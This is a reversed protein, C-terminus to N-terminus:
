APVVWLRGCVGFRRARCSGTLALMGRFKLGFGCSCASRSPPRTTPSPLQLRPKCGGAWECWGADAAFDPTGRRQPGDREPRRSMHTRRTMRAVRQAAPGCVRGRLAFNGASEYNQDPYRREGTHRHTAVPTQLRHFRCRPASPEAWLAAAARRAGAAPEHADQADDAGGAARGAWM